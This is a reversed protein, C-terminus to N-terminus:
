ATAASHRGRARKAALLDADAASFLSAPTHESDRQAVGCTV